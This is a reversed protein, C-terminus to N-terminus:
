EGARRSERFDFYRKVSVYILMACVAFFALGANHFIGDTMAALVLGGVALAGIIPIYLMLADGSRVSAALLLGDYRGDFQHRIRLAIMLVAIGFTVMGAIYADGQPDGSATFLGLVGAAGILLYGLWPALLRWVGYFDTPRTIVDDEDAEMVGLGHGPPVRRASAEQQM